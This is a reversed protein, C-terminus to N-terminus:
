PTAAKALLGAAVLADKITAGKYILTPSARFDAIEAGYWKLNVDLNVDDPMERIAKGVAANESQQALQEKLEHEYEADQGLQITQNELLTKQQALQKQLAAVEATLAAIGSAGPSPKGELADLREYIYMIANAM